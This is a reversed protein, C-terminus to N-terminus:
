LKYFRGQEYSIVEALDRCLMCFARKVSIIRLPMYYKNLVLVNCHLAPQLETLAM